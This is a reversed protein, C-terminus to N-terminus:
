SCRVYSETSNPDLSAVVRGVINIEEQAMPISPYHRNDSLLEITGNPNKHVRKVFLGTTTNIVYIGSGELTVKTIDVLVISNDEITPRMSDGIINIAHFNEPKFVGMLNATKKDICIEKPQPNEDYYGGGGCSANLNEIFRIKYVEEERHILKMSSNGLIVWNITISYRECLKVIEEYPITNRKKDNAYQTQSLGLEYAIEKDYPMSGQNIEMITAIRQMIEEFQFENKTDSM